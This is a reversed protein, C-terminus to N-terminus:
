AEEEDEDVPEGGVEIYVGSNGVVVLTLGGEDIAVEEGEDAAISQLWDRLVAIKLM